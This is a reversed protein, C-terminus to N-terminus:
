ALCNQFKDVNVTKGLAIEALEPAFKKASFFTLFRMMYLMSGLGWVKVNEQAEVV